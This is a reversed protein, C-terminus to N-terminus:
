AAIIKCSTASPVIAHPREIQITNRPNSSIHCQRRQYIEASIGIINDGMELLHWDIWECHFKQPYVAPTDCCLPQLQGKIFVTMTVSMMVMLMRMIMAMCVVMMVMLMRMTMRMVMVMMVMLMCTTM